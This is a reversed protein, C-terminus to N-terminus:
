VGVARRLYDDSVVIGDSVGLDRDVANKEHAGRKTPNGRIWSLNLDSAHTCRQGHWRVLRSDMCTVVMSLDTDTRQPM